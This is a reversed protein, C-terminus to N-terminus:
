RIGSPCKSPASPTWFDLRPPQIRRHGMVVWIGWRRWRWRASPSSTGGIRAKAPASRRCLPRAPIWPWRNANAEKLPDIWDWGPRVWVHRQYAEPNKAYEQPSVPLQGSLLMWDLWEEYVPTLLHDILYTQWSSYTKRDELLGQRASSYNVQSMDRSAAEYSLGQGSGTLRQTTRLM